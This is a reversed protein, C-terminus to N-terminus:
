RAAKATTLRVEDGTAKVVWEKNDTSEAQEFHIRNKGSFVNTTRYYITKGGADWTSSYIWRDGAIELDGRGSARGEPRVNQTYYKGPKGAPIFILLAGPTGNATQECVFYRGVLSCLNVLKEPPQNQRSIQWSGKYLWLPAYADPEAPLATSVISLLLFLVIAPLTKEL